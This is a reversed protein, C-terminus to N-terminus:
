PNPRWAAHALAEVPADGDVLEQGDEAGVPAFLDGDVFWGLHDMVGATQLTGRVSEPAPAASTM